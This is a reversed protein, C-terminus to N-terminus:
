RDEGFVRAAYRALGLANATVADSLVQGHPYHQLLAKRLAEAGGGTFLLHPFQRGNGWRQEIFTIIAAITADTAQKVVSTLDMEGRSTHLTPLRQHLLADGEHLSLSIGHQSHVAALVLEAARRMGVTDGGTFRAVVDGAEVTFLDLTNFGIDCIAVPAKLDAKQRAWCGKNDLGWAFFAGAPQAMVQVQDIELIVSVGDVEFSHAGIMWSRLSRLTQRARERDAMVEVPLGVMFSVQHKGGDLLNFIVAYCLARLEPGDSLRLFDMRQVPRAYRAVKEGVLYSMGEFFVRNPGSRSRRHGMKGLSLMGMETDGIGVVSPVVAVKAHDADTQAAKFNGFGPDIGIAIM